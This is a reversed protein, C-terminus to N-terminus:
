VSLEKIKARIALPLFATTKEDFFHTSERYAELAQAKKGQALCSEALTYYLTMREYPQAPGTGLKRIAERLHREAFVHDKRRVYYRGLANEIEWSAPNDVVGKELLRVADGPKDFEKELWHATTLVAEMNYPDMATALAFFPLMEKRKDKALHIEDHTQIASNIAAIWDAPKEASEHDVM